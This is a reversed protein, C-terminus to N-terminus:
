IKVSSRLNKPKVPEISQVTNEIPEVPINLDAKDLMAIAQYGAQNATTLAKRLVQAIARPVRVYEESEDTIDAKAVPEEDPRVKTMLAKISKYTKWAWVALGACVVFMVTAAIKFIWVTTGDNM